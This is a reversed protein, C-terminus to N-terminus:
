VCVLLVGGSRVRLRNAATQHVVWPVTGNAPQTAQPVADIQRLHAHVEAAAQGGLARSGIQGDVSLRECLQSDTAASLPTPDDHMQHVPSSSLSFRAPTLCGSGPMRVPTAVDSLDLRRYALRDQLVAGLSEAACAATNNASAAGAAHSGVLDM